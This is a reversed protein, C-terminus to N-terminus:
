PNTQQEGSMKRLAYDLATKTFESLTFQPSFIATRITERRGALGFICRYFEFVDWNKVDNTEIEGSKLKIEEEEDPRPIFHVGKDLEFDVEDEKVALDTALIQRCVKSLISYDPM